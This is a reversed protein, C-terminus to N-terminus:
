FKFLAGISVLNANGNWATDNFHYRDWALRIGVAPSVNFQGGLGYTVARNNQDGFNCGAPCGPKGTIVAYGLKGFLSFQENIPFSGVGSVSFGTSKVSNDGSKIEGLNLYEAELAFNPTFDHGVFVGWGTPNASDLGATAWTNNDINTKAQGVRLGVYNDAAVAPAVVASLLVVAIAIKKM